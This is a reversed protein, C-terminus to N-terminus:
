INKYLGSIKKGISEYFNNNFEIIPNLESNDIMYKDDIEFNGLIYNGDEQLDKQGNMM